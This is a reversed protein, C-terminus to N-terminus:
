FIQNLKRMKEEKMKGAFWGALVGILWGLILGGKLTEASVALSILSGLGAGITMGVVCYVAVMYGRPRIGHHSKLHKLIEEVLNDFDKSFENGDDFFQDLHETSEQLKAWYLKCEPCDEAKESLLKGLRPLVEFNSIVAQIRSIKSAKEDLEEMWDDYSLLIFVM